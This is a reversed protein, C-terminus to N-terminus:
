QIRDSGAALMALVATLKQGVPVERRTATKTKAAELVLTQRVQGTATTTTRINKFQLSLLEGLRCATSLAAIILDRLLPGACALLATEEGADVLRRHRPTEPTLKVVAVGGRVFPSHDLYGNAIAWNFLARCRELLRNHGTEGGTRGSAKTHARRAERM